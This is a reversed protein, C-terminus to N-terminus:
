DDVQPLQKAEKADEQVGLTHKFASQLGHYRM